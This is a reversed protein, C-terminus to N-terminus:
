HFFCPILFVPRYTTNQIFLLLYLLYVFTPMVPFHSFSSDRPRGPGGGRASREASTGGGDRLWGRGVHDLRSGGREGPPPHHPRAVRCETKVRQSKIRVQEREQQTRSLVRRGRLGLHTKPTGHTHGWAKRALTGNRFRTEIGRFPTLPSASPQTKAVFASERM